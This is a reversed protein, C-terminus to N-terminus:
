HKKDTPPHPDNGYSDKDRIRGDQGHIVLETKNQRAIREGKELATRQINHNSIPLPNGERKVSWQNGNPVVHIPKTM